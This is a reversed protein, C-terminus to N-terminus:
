YLLPIIRLPMSIHSGWLLHHASSWRQSFNILGTMNHRDLPFFHLHIDLLRPRDGACPRLIIYPKILSDEESTSKGRRSAVFAASNEWSSRQTVDSPVTSPAEGWERVTVMSLNGETVKRFTWNEGEHQWLELSPKFSLTTKLASRDFALLSLRSCNANWLDDFGLWSLSFDLLSLPVQLNNFWTFDSYCFLTWLPRCAPSFRSLAIYFCPNLKNYLGEM